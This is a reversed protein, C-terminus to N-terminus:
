PFLACPLSHHPSRRSLLLRLVELRGRRSAAWVLARTGSKDYKHLLAPEADLLAEVEEKTGVRVAELFRYFTSSM